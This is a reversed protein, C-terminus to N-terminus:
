CLRTATAQVSPRPSPRLEPFTCGPRGSPSSSSLRPSSRRHTTTHQDSSPITCPLSSRSGISSTRKQRSVSRRRCNSKTGTTESESRTASTSAWCPHNRTREDRLADDNDGGISILAIKQDNKKTRVSNASRQLICMLDGPDHELVSLASFGLTGKDVDSVPVREHSTRKNFKTRDDPRARHRM